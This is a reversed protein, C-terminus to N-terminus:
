WRRWWLKDHHIMCWVRYLLLSLVFCSTALLVMSPLWRDIEENGLPVDNDCSTWHTELRRSNGSTKEYFCDVCPPVLRENQYSDQKMIKPQPEVLSFFHFPATKTAVYAPGSKAEGTTKGNWDAEPSLIRFSSIIQCLLSFPISFPLLYFRSSSLLNFTDMRWFPRNWPSSPLVVVCKSRKHDPNNLSHFTSCMREYHAYNLRIAIRLFYPFSALLISQFSSVSLKIEIRNSEDSAFQVVGGGPM